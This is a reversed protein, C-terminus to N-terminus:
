TGDGEIVALLEAVLHRAKGLLHAAVTRGLPQAVIVHGAAVALHRTDGAEHRVALLGLELLPEGLQQGQAGRM